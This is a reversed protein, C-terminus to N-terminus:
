EGIETINSVVISCASYSVSSNMLYFLNYRQLFSSALAVQGLTRIEM